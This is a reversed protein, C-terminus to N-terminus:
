TTRNDVVIVDELIGKKGAYDLASSYLYDELNFVLGEEVPNQHVYKIKESIVKNSRLEIPKNDHRWPEFLFKWEKKESRMGYLTSFYTKTNPGQLVDIRGIAIPVVVAFSVFYVRVPNHFKYNWSTSWLYHNESLGRTLVRAPALPSSVRVFPAKM